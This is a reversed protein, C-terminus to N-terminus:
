MVRYLASRSQILRGTICFYESDCPEQTDDSYFHAFTSSSISHQQLAPQLFMPPLQAMSDIMLTQM